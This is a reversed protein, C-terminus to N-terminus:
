EPEKATYLVDDSACDARWEALSCPGGWVENAAPITVTYDIVDDTVDTVVTVAMAEPAHPYSGRLVDGVRPNQRPDRSM